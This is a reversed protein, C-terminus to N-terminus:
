RIIIEASIAGAQRLGEFIAAIEAPSTQIAHLASAIRQVSTGPAVRVDGRIRSTDATPGVTLTVGGHSIVAEGVMLEGGAIVTGDRADIVVRAARDARLRVDRIKTLTAAFSTGTDKPAITISGPDDVRATGPTAFVSDIAAAIRTATGLDPDRLLLKNSAALAPRPIEAELVGGDPIRATNTPEGSQRSMASPSVLLPGQAGGVPRQGADAVLPTMWLVGGRLSAADGISSVRVEFRGGPRLYPSVEATVLVAAVNKTRLLEAPVEVDFRRLLNVISTVTQAAGAIGSVRDGTGALGTVLGYGMLRVPPAPDTLILDRVRTEQTKAETAVILLAGLVCLVALIQRVRHAPTDAPNTM